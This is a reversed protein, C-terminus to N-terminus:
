GREFLREIDSVLNTVVHCDVQERLAHSDALFRCPHQTRAKLYRETCKDGGSQTRCLRVQAKAKSTYRQVNANSGSTSMRGDGPRARDLGESIGFVASIDERNKRTQHALFLFAPCSHFAGPTFHHRPSSVGLRLILSCSSVDHVSM